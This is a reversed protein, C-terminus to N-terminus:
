YGYGVCFLISFISTLIFSWIGMLWKLPLLVRDIRRESGQFYESVFGSCFGTNGRVEAAMFALTHMGHSYSTVCRAVALGCCSLLMVVLLSLVRCHSSM